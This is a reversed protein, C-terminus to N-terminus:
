FWFNFGFEENIKRLEESNRLADMLPLCKREREAQERLYDGNPRFRVRQGEVQALYKRGVHLPRLGFKFLIDNFEFRFHLNREREAGKWGSYQAFRPDLQETYGIFPREPDCLTLNVYGALRARLGFDSDEEGYLGYDENWWGLKEQVDRRILVCGGVHGQYHLVAETEPAYRLGSSNCGFGLMAIEPYADAYGALASLWGPRLFEVDNDVKMYYDAPFLEWGLNFAPSVGMNEDLLALRHIVGEALLGQLYERTGDTSANDVVVVRHAFGALRRMSDICRRTCELRNFTVVTLNAVRGSM